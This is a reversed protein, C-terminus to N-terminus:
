IKAKPFGEIFEKHSIDCVENDHVIWNLGFCSNIKKNVSATMMSIDYDEINAHLESYKGSQETTVKLFVSGLDDLGEQIDVVCGCNLKRGTNKRLSFFFIDSRKDNEFVEFCWRYRNDIEVFNELAGITPVVYEQVSDM